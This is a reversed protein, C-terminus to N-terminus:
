WNYWFYPAKSAISEVVIITGFLISIKIYLDHNFM